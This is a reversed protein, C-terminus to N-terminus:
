NNHKIRSVFKRREIIEFILFSLTIGLVHFFGKFVIDTAFLLYSLLISGFGILAGIFFMLFKQTESLFLYSLSIILIHLISRTILGDDKGYYFLM